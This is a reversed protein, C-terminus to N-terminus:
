NQDYKMLNQRPGALRSPIKLVYLIKPLFKIFPGM